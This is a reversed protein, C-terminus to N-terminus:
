LEELHLGAYFEADRFTGGGASNTDRGTPLYKSGIERLIVAYEELTLGFKEAEARQYLEAFSNASPSELGSALVGTAQSHVSDRAEKRAGGPVVVQSVRGELPKEGKCSGATLGRKM